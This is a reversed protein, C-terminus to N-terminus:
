TPSVVPAQRALSPWSTTQPSTSSSLTFSSLLPWIGITSAPEFLEHLVAELGAVQPEDDARRPCHLRGLEDVEAHRGRLACVAGGVERVDLRRSALDSGYRSSPAITTFLDVTGTPEVLDDLGHQASWVDRDHGVGLEEALARRGRSGAGPGSRRRLRPGPRPRGPRRRQVEADGAGNMTVSGADASVMLYAALAKRAVLIEKTLAMAATQSATPASTASTTSPMPESLRM